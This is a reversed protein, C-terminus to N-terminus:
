DNQYIMVGRQKILERIDKFYFGLNILIILSFYILAGKWWNFSMSTLFFVSLYCGFYIVEKFTIALSKFDRASYIYWVYLSLTTAIAISQPRKFILVGSIIVFISVVLMKFVTFFYRREQKQAKYLNVYLANIVIIVPFGAFLVSIIQLSPMYKPLFFKVIFSFVFYVGSFLTGLILFYTKFKKYIREDQHRILYPYLTMTVSSILINIATMMSIAFSYFAFARVSFLYKVFWRDISYLFITSLNGIMVFIGVQFDKKIRLLDYTPKSGKGKRMFDLELGIFVIYNIILTGIIFPWYNDLKLIYIIFLNMVLLLNPTLLMIKSYLSFQGLAQFLFQFLSQMNLPLVAVSVAILINDKLFVGLLLTLVTVILQFFLLFNHEGKLISKDIESEIKGGYKIYLGDIFGFHLIGVFGIYLTYTKLYAYQDLSLFAPVLFGIIIGILLNIVNSSFVSSIDKKLSM